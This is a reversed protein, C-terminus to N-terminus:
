YLDVLRVACFTMNGILQRHLACHLLERGLSFIRFTEKTFEIVVPKESRRKPQLGLCAGYATAAL